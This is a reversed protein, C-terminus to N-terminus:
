KARATVDIIYGKADRIPTFVWEMPIAPPTTFPIAKPVNVIPAAVDVNVDISKIATELSSIGNKIQKLLTIIDKDPEPIRIAQVVETLKGIAEEIDYLAPTVLDPDEGVEIEFEALVEEDVLEDYEPYTERWEKLKM